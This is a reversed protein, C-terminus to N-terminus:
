SKGPAVPFRGASFPIPGAAAPSAQAADPLLQRLIVDAIGFAHRGSMEDAMLSDAYGQMDDNVRNKFVSGEAAMERTASRMDKLMQSIFFSEFKRAAATAEARYRADGADAAADIAFAPAAADPLALPRPQALPDFGAM